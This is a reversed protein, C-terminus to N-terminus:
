NTFVVATCRSIYLLQAIWPFSMGEGTLMPALALDEETVTKLVWGQMHADRCLVRTDVDKRRLRKHWELRGFYGRLLKPQLMAIYQLRNRDTEPTFDHSMEVVELTIPRVSDEGSDSSQGRDEGVQM